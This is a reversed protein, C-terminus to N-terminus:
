NAVGGVVRILPGILKGVEDILILRDMHDARMSAQDFAIDANRNIEITDPRGLKALEIAIKKLREDLVALGEGEDDRFDVKVRKALPSGFEWSRWVSLRRTPHNVARETRLLLHDVFQPSARTGLQNPSRM